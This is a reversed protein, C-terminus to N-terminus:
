FVSREPNNNNVDWMRTGGGWWVVLSRFRNRELACRISKGSSWKPQFPASGDRFTDRSQEYGQPRWWILWRPTIGSDKRYAGIRWERSGGPRRIISFRCCKWCTEKWWGVITGMYYYRIKWWKISFGMPRCRQYRIQQRMQYWGGANGLRRCTTIRPRGIAIIIRSPAALTLLPM